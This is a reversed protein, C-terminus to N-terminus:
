AAKKDIFSKWFEYAEKANEETEFRGMSKGDIRVTWYTYTDSRIARIAISHEAALAPLGLRDGYQVLYEAIETLGAAVFVYATNLLVQGSKYGNINKATIGSVDDRLAQPTLYISIEETNMLVDLYAATAGAREVRVTVWV